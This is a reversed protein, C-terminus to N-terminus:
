LMLVSKGERSKTRRPENYAKKVEHIRMFNLRDNKMGNHIPGHEQWKVLLPLM